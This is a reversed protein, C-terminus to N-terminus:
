TRRAAARGEGVGEGGGEGNWIPSCRQQLLNRLRPLYCTENSISTMNKFYVYDGSTYAAM